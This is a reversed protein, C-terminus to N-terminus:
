ADSEGEIATAPPVGPVGRGADNVRKLSDPSTGGDAGAAARARQAAPARRDQRRHCSICLEVYDDLDRLYRGSVNAWETGSFRATGVAAGCESCVGSKEKHRRVWAHLTSYGVAEGRWNAHEEGLFRGRRAESMRRRTEESTVRNRNYSALRARQEDSVPRGRKADAIKARHEPSLPRGRQQHGRIFRYPQGKVYGRRRCSKPAVPAPQGCGCQCLNM